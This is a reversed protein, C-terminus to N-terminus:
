KGSNKQAVLKYQKANCIWEMVSQFSNHTNKTM